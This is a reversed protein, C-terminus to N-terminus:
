VTFQIMLSNGRITRARGGVRRRSARKTDFGKEGKGLSGIMLGGRVYEEGCDKFVNTEM